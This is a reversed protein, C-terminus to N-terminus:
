KVPCTKTGSSIDCRFLTSSWVKEGCVLNANMKEIENKAVM